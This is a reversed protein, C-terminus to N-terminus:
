LYFFVQLIACAINNFEKSDTNIKNFEEKTKRLCEKMMGLIQRIGELDEEAHEESIDLSKKVNEINEKLLDSVIEEIHKGFVKKLETKIVAQTEPEVDDITEILETLM